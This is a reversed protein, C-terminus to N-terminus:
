DDYCILEDYFWYPDELYQELSFTSIVSFDKMSVSVISRSGMLYLVDDIYIIRCFDETRNAYYTDSDTKTVYSGLKTFGTADDYSYFMVGSESMYKYQTDYYDYESDYVVDYAEERYHSFPFAIINKKADILLAKEDYTAASYYNEYVYGIQDYDEWDRYPASMEVKAMETVNNPDLTNYMSLKIGTTVGNEEDATSGFGIMRGDTYARMHTSFGPMKLESLITPNYPDSVDIAYLPDTQIFTVVYAINDRYTVSKIDEGTGYAQSKGLVNMSGDFTYLYNYKQGNTQDVTHVAACFTDGCNGLWFRDAISGDVYANGATTINGDSINFSLIQSQMKWTYYTDEFDTYFTNFMYLKDATMYINAYSGLKAKGSKRTGTATDFSSVVTYGSCDTNMESVLIDEAAVYNKQGNVSYAPVFEPSNKEPSYDPMDYYYYYLGTYTTLYVDSGIM